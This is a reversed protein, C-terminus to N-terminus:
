KVRGRDSVYVQIYTVASRNELVQLSMDRGRRGEASSVASAKNM